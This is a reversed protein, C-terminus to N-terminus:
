ASSPKIIHRNLMAALEEKLFPKGLSDTFGYKQPYAMVPDASYGSSVFVPMDPFNKRVQVITDKGGMGGQITLDFIAADIPPADTDLLLKIAEEGNKATVVNYGMSSLLKNLLTRVLAEDDMVLIRGQGHHTAPIVASNNDPINPSAPICIHFTSGKGMISEVDIMGAHKQIIAYCTTLGLGNGEQKTTFFPDFVRQRIDAPIGAGNDTISIKIYKGPKLLPHDGDRLAVNKAAIVIKGGTPMAQKANIVINDIAQEIQGKDFDVAWLDQAINFECTIASGSLAFTASERIAPGIYGTKRLPEGGKAFALLQRTLNKAREFAILAQGLYIKTKEKDEAMRALEIYGFIGALLNNFDHAIGGALVGIAELKDTRQLADLLKQKDTMDRFVLVVGITANNADKIPAGSDAIIRTTGNRAILLTHNALEIIGGSDIVRTAPNACPQRTTEDVIRFVKELPQGQADEQLWGTLNEAVGNMMVVNGLTDTTIVGDGISRLTVALREKEAALTAEAQKQSTIDRFEVTRVMKGRYPIERAELRIPFEEGNKRRGIAEYPKEYGSMINSIVLDRTKESILLLGDMGILEDLSYGTIESLGQNCDLIRGKDHITIGGFSANHLAKFRTENEEAVVKAKRLEEEALKLRTIDITFGALRAPKGAIVIPFKITSYYKGNLEEEVAFPVGERLIKSDVEIMPGALEPPFLEDMSKGLLEELPRGLMQEYNRSM